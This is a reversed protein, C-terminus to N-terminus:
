HHPETFVPEAAAPGDSAPTQGRPKEGPLASRRPSEPILRAIIKLFPKIKSALTREM